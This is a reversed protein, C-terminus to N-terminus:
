PGNRPPWRHKDPAAAANAILQLLKTRKHAHETDQLRPVFRSSPSIVLYNMDFCCRARVHRCNHEPATAEHADGDGGHEDHRHQVQQDAPQRRVGVILQGAPRRRQRPVGRAQVHTLSRPPKPITLTKLRLVVHKALKNKFTNQSLWYTIKNNFNCQM